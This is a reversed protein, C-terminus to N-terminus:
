VPDIVTYLMDNDVHCGLAVINEEIYVKITKNNNYKMDLKMFYKVDYKIKDNPRLHFNVNNDKISPRIYQYQKEISKIILDFHNKNVAVSRFDKFSLINPKIIEKTDLSIQMNSFYSMYLLKIDLDIYLLLPMTDTMRSLLVNFDIRNVEITIKDKACYFTNINKIHFLKPNSKKESIFIGNKLDFTIEYQPSGTLVDCITILNKVNTFSIELTRDSKTPVSRYLDVIHHIIERPIVCSLRNSVDTLSLIILTYSTAM